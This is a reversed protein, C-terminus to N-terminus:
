LKERIYKIRKDIRLALEALERADNRVRDFMPLGEAPAADKRVPEEDYPGVLEETLKALDGEM